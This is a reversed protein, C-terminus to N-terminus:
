KTKPQKWAGKVWWASEGNPLTMRWAGKKTDFSEAGKPKQPLVQGASEPQRSKKFEEIGPVGKPVVLSSLYNAYAEDEQDQKNFVRRQENIREKASHAKQYVSELAEATAAAADAREQREQIDANISIAQKLKDGYLGTTDIKKGVQLSMMDAHQKASRANAEAKDESMEADRMISDLSSVKEKRKDNFEKILAIIAKKDIGAGGAGGRSRAKQAEARLKASRADMEDIEHSLKANIADTEATLKQHAAHLKAGIEGKELMRYPLMARETETKAQTSETQAQTYGIKAMAQKYEVDTMQGKRWADTYYNIARAKDLEQQTETRREMEPFLGRDDKTIGVAIKRAREASPSFLDEISTIPMHVNKGAQLAAAQEEPTNAGRVKAVWDDYSMPEQRHQLEMEVMKLRNALLADKPNKKVFEALKDAAVQLQEQSAEKLTKPPAKAQEEAKAKVEAAAEEKRRMEDYPSPSSIGVSPAYAHEKASAPVEPLVMKDAGIPVDQAPASVRVPQELKTREARSTRELEYVGPKNALANVQALKDKEVGQALRLQAQLQMDRPNKNLESKLRDVEKVSESYNTRARSLEDLASPAPKTPAPAQPAQPEASGGPPGKRASGAIPSTPPANDSDKQQTPTPSSPAPTAAFESDARKESEYDKNFKEDLGLDWEKVQQAVEPSLKDIKFPYVDSQVKHHAAARRFETESPHEEPGTLDYAVDGVHGKKYEEEREQKFWDQAGGYLASGGRIALDAFPKIKGAVDAMLGINQLKERSTEGPVRQVPARQVPAFAESEADLIRAM